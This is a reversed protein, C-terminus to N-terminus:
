GGAIHRYLGPVIGTALVLGNLAVLWGAHLGAAIWPGRSGRGGPVLRVLATLGVAALIALVPLQSAFYRPQLWRYRYSPYLFTALFLALGALVLLLPARAVPSWAGRGRPLASAALGALVLPVYWQAHALWPGGAHNLAGYAVPLRWLLLEPLEELYFRAASWSPPNAGAAILLDRCRELAAVAFPDGWEALNRAM